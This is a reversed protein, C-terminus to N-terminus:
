TEDSSPLRVLSSSVRRGVRGVSEVEGHGIIRRQHHAHRVQRDVVRPRGVESREDDSCSTLRREALRQSRILVSV